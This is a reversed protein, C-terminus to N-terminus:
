IHMRARAPRTRLRVARGGDHVIADAKARKRALVGTHEQGRWGCSCEAAFADPDGFRARLDRVRVAHQLSALADELSAHMSRPSGDDEPSHSV